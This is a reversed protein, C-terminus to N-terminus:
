SDDKESKRREFIGYEGPRIGEEGRLIYMQVIADTNQLGPIARKALWIQGAAGSQM